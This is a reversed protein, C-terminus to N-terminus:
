HVGSDGSSSSSLSFLLKTVGPGLDPTLLRHEVNKEEDLRLLSSELVALRTVPVLSAPVSHM